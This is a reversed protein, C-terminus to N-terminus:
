PLSLMNRVIMATSQIRIKKINENANDLNKLILDAFNIFTNDNIRRDLYKGTLDSNEFQRAVKARQRNLLNWQEETLKLDLKKVYYLPYRLQHYIGLAILIDPSLNGNMHTHLDSHFKFERPIYTKFITKSIDMRYDRTQSMLTKSIAPLAAKM